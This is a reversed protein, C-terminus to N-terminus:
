GGYTIRWITGNGDETLILAGDKAVAVGVPRGWVADDAIVFGTAFDQYEGTPKGDKFKLRVLKYGTRVNRNWSGHLAVFADGKYDAPFNGGEYFAITLPASHAQMLVDPVTVKEALDPRAGEHRPDENGGLYYWPWGYFAGDKVATAYEFPVNDGLEDRENVVCWLAGTAPQVTMGSCNRLGTAVMRRNRGDPDFALVDARGEEPGWSAGLPQSRAWEEVGGKPRAGMDEAVNSGSGVSLYLTKGDPSFAIDRTWHHSSPINSVITEPKGSAQMDGDRYAFRVVSNSNAVYVWQPKDGPPYFAIGYPRTLRKAFIAEAAPKASGEALRYVRVQNARSDAVFLDGNPAVRVVRPSDIGSAVLEVSFGPPVIPKAGEPRDTLGGGNSASDTVYPQQLDDPKILRRVGPRDAKWDGFAQKGTLLPQDAQQAFAGAALLLGLAALGAIRIM